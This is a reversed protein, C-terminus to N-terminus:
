AAKALAAKKSASPDGTEIFIRLDACVEDCLKSMQRKMMWGMLFDAIPKLEAELRFSIETKQEGLGRVWWTNGMRKAFGPAGDIVTYSFTRASEDFKDVRETILGLSPVDCQRHQVGAPGVTELARSTSVGTSWEGVDHFRKGLVQWVHEPSVNVIFSREIEMVGDQTWTSTGAM